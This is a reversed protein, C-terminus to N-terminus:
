SFIEFLLFVIYIGLLFLSERLTIKNGTRSFLLFFVASIILFIRAGELVSLDDGSITIPSILAVTGLVLTSSVAVAGMLSGLIMWSQGKKALNIVLFTEPLAVGLGVVLIGILLPPINLTDSFAEASDVIVYAFLAILVFGGLVTFLDKLFAVLNKSIGKKEQDYVKSFREKKSFLWFIYFFFCAILIMGDARSLEGDLILLLPLIAALIAFTSGARVTKSEMELQKLILVCIAPALTFLIINQGFINGLSLQPLGKLASTIGIFFEPLVAGLSVAFFAVVFEKWHLLRSIRILADIVLKGAIVILVCSTLFSLIPLLIESM